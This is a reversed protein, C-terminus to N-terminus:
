RRVRHQARRRRREMPDLPLAHYVEIRDGAHLPHELTVRTGYVGLALGSDPSWAHAEYIGSVDLAHRVTAGQFLYLERSWIQTPTCYVVEVKFRESGM